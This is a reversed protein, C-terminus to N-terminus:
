NSFLFPYSVEATTNAPPEPFRWTKLKETICDAVDKNGLENSKTSASIVRGQEGIEWTLVIKGMLDPHRNLEKEYCARISSLNARIVRRIAERDITGRIDEGAGGTVIKVGQRNGLGGTGYGSNGSGRGQTGVGGAIGDLAKGNGGMGTDKLESGLGQGARDVASGAKGNAASAMGALEGAGTTSQALKDQAGNNGFVSFMGAHSVDKSKSEMQAGEKPTTKIAGGQKVSTQIRPGTKNKNPAASASKGPDEKKTLNTVTPATKKQAEQVKEAVKVKQPPPTAVPTPVPTAAPQPPPPPPPPPLPPPTPPALLIVATRDPQKEEQDDLPKPPSYLYM